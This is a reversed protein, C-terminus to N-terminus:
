TKIVEKSATGFLDRRIKSLHEYCDQISYKYKQYLRAQVDELTSNSIKLLTHVIALMAMPKSGKNETTNMNM